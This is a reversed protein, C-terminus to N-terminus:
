KKFENKFLFIFILGQLVNGAIRYNNNNRPHSYSSLIDIALYSYAICSCTHGSLRYSDTPHCTVVVTVWYKDNPHCPLSDM